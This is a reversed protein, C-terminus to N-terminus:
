KKVSSLPKNEQESKQYNLGDLGLVSNNLFLFSRQFHVSLQLGLALQLTSLGLFM